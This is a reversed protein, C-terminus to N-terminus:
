IKVMCYHVISFNYFLRYLLHLSNYFTPSMTVLHIYHIEESYFWIICQLVHLYKKQNIILIQKNYYIYFIYYIYVMHKLLIYFFASICFINYFLINLLCLNNPKFFRIFHIRTSDITTSQLQRKGGDQQRHGDNCYSQTVM